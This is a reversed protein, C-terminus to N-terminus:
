FSLKASLMVHDSPEDSSPLPGKINGRIPLTKVSEVNWESSIFIYDLTDIFPDESKIQAFNTFDPERGNALVYSSRFPQELNCRWPGTYKFSDLIVPMTPHSSEVSGQTLLKYMADQPKINFDGAYIYPCGDAFDTIHQASLACHVMMMPPRRYACPMHYTGIVFSKDEKEPSSSIPKLKLCIMQNKRGGADRWYSLVRENEEDETSTVNKINKPSQTLKKDDDISSSFSIISKARQFLNQIFGGDEKVVNKNKNNNSNNNFSKTSNYFDGREREPISFDINEAIRRIDADIISYMSTPVAIAVGMFNNMVNGYSTSVMAYGREAFFAYLPGAWSISVEQLCIIANQSVEEDLKAKIKLFRKSADLNVPDCSTFYSPEALHSSLINYTCIRHTPNQSPSSTSLSMSMISPTLQLNDHLRQGSLRSAMRPRLVSFSSRMFRLSSVSNMLLAIVFKLILFLRSSPLSIM